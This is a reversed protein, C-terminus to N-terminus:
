EDVGDLLEEVSATRWGKKGAAVQKKRGRIRAALKREDVAKDDAPTRCDVCFPEPLGPTGHVGWADIRFGTKVGRKKGCRSCPKKM